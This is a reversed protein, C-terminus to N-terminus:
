SMKKYRYSVEYKLTATKQKDWDHKERKSGKIGNQSLITKNITHNLDKDNVIFIARMYSHRIRWRKKWYVAVKVNRTTLFDGCVTKDGGGGFEDDLDRLDDAEIDSGADDIDEAQITLADGHMSKERGCRRRIYIQAKLPEFLLTDNKYANILFEDGIKDKFDNKFAQLVGEDSEWADMDTEVKDSM